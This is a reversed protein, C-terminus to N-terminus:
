DDRRFSFNLTKNEEIKPKNHSEWTVCASQWKKMKNKGIMWGKSEYFSVFAEASFHYGKEKIYEEVEEVTPPIFKSKEKINNEKINKLEKIRINKNQTEDATENSTGDTTEDTTEDATDGYQFVEYKVITVVTGNPTRKTNLMQESELVNLFRLVKNRSWGWRNALKVTSTMYSGREIVVIDNDILLKKDSHNALLILDIWARAKDYPKEQWIFCDQIQRHIKIWGKDSM